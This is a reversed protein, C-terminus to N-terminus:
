SGADLDRLYRYRLHIGYASRSAMTVGLKGDVIGGLLFVEAFWRWAPRLWLNAFGAHKGRESLDRAGLRAYSHIRAYQDEASRFSHHLIESRLREVAGEVRLSEHVARDELYAQETRVLVTKWDPQFVRRLKVGEFVTRRRMQFGNALCDPFDRRVLEDWLRPEIVEDADIMLAWETCVLSLLHRRADVFGTWPRVHVEAGVDEAIERTRDDSEADLVIIREVRDGAAELSAAVRDEENRTLMCLTVPFQAKNDPLSM